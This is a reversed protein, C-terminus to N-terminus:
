GLSCGTVVETLVCENGKEATEINCKKLVSASKSSEAIMDLETDDTVSGCAALVSCILILGTHSQRNVGRSHSELM